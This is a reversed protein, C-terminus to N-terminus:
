SQSSPLVPWVTGVPGDIQIQPSQWAPLMPGIALALPVTEIWIRSRSWVMMPLGAWSRIRSLREIALAARPDSRGPTVVARIISCIM